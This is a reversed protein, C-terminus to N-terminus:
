FLGQAYESYGSSLAKHAYAGPTLRYDIPLKRSTEYEESYGEILGFYGAMKAYNDIVILGITMLVSTQLAKRTSIGKFSRSLVFYSVAMSASYKLVNCTSKYM